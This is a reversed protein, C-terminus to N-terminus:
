DPLSLSQTRKFCVRGWGAWAQENSGDVTLDPRVASPFSWITSRAMGSAKEIAAIIHRQADFDIAM